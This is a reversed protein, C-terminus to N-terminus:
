ADKLGATMRLEHAAADKIDWKPMTELEYVEDYWDIDIGYNKKILFRFQKKSYAELILIGGNDLRVKFVKKQKM